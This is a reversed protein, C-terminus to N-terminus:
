QGLSKVDPDTSPSRFGSSAEVKTSSNPVPVSPLKVVPGAGHGIPVDADSHSSLVFVSSMAGVCFFIVSVIALVISPWLFFVHSPGKYRYGFASEGYLMLQTLYAGAFALAAFFVGAAFLGLPWWAYHALVRGQPAQGLFALMAVAAGGNILIISKLMEIAVSPLSKFTEIAHSDQLDKM